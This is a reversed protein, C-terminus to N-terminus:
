PWRISPSRERGDAATARQAALLTAPNILCPMNEWEMWILDLVLEESQKAVRETDPRHGVVGWTAASLGISLGIAPRSRTLGVQRCFWCKVGHPRAWVFAVPTSTSSEPGTKPYGWNRFPHPANVACSNKRVARMSERKPGHATSRIDLVCARSVAVPASVFFVFRILVSGQASVPLLGTFTSGEVRIFGRRLLPSRTRAPVRFRLDFPNDM